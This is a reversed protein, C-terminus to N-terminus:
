DVMWIYFHHGRGGSDYVFSVLCFLAQLAYAVFPYLISSNKQAGVNSLATPSCGVVGLELTHCPQGTLVAKLKPTPTALTKSATVVM